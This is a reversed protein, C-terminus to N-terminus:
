LEDPPDPVFRLGMEALWDDLSITNVRSGANRWIAWASGVFRRELVPLADLTVQTVLPLGLYHTVEDSDLPCLERPFFMPSADAPNGSLQAAAQAAAVRDEARVVLVVHAVFTPSTM